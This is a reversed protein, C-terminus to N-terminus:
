RDGAVGRCGSAPHGGDHPDRHPVHDPQVAALEMHGVKRSPRDNEAIEGQNGFRTWASFGNYAEANNTAATV